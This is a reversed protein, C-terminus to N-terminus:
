LKNAPEVAAAGISLLTHIFKTQMDYWTTFGRNYGHYTYSHHIAVLRNCAVIKILHTVLISEVFILSTIVQQSAFNFLKIALTIESNSRHQIKHLLYSALALKFM